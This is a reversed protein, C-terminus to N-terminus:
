HEIDNLEELEFTLDKLFGLCDSKNFADRGYDMTDFGIFIPATHPDDDPLKGVFTIEVPSKIGVRPVFWNILEMRAQEYFKDSPLIEVYATYWEAIPEFSAKKIVLHRGRFNAELIRKFM